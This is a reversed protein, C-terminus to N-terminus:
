QLESRAPEVDQVRVQRAPEAELGLFSRVHHRKRVRRPLDGEPTTFLVALERLREVRHRDHEARQVALDRRHASRKGPLADGVDLHAPASKGDRQGVGDPRELFTPEEACRDRDRRAQVAIDIADRRGGGEDQRLPLAVVRDDARDAGPDDARPRRNPWPARESASAALTPAASPPRGTRM